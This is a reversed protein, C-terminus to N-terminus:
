MSGAVIFADKEDEAGLERSLLRSGSGNGRYLGKAKVGPIVYLGMREYFSIAPINTTAVNAYIVLSKKAHRDM